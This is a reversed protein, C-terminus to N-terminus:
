EEEDLFYPENDEDDEDDYPMVDASPFKNAVRRATDYDNFSARLQFSLTGDPLRKTQYVNFKIM